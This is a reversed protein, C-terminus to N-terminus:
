YELLEAPDFSLEFPERMVFQQGSIAEAQMRYDAGDLRLLVVVVKSGSIEVRMYYPIGLEACIAPKDLNDRRRSSPSVLEVPLLVDGPEFWTKQKAPNRLVVLDPEIWSKHGTSVNLASYVRAGVAKASSRMLAGLEMAAWSNASGERPSMILRGNMAEYRTPPMGEIPLFREALELTWLGDLDILPEFPRDYAPAAM